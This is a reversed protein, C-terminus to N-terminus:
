ITCRLAQRASIRQEMVFQQVSNAISGSATDMIQPRKVDLFVQSGSTKTKAGDISEEALKVLPAVTTQNERQVAQKAMALGGGAIRLAQQLMDEVDGTSQPDKTDLVIRLLAPAALNFTATGGRLRKAADLNLPAGRKAADVAKDFDPFAGPEMAVIVDNDAEAKQLREFLPGKPETVSVVKAMNEKSTLVITNSSPTYAMPADGAGLDLCTKGGVKIEQIPVPGNPAMAAQVKTLVEKADVDHTFRVLLVAVPEARGPQKEGTGFLIVIQEVERPGIGFKKIEGAITEDKLQEAVLPSEAIRRLNVVIAAFHDPTVLSFDIAGSSASSAQSDSSSGAVPQDPARQGATDSAKAQPTRGSGSSSTEKKDEAGCGSYVVLLVATILVALSRSCRM